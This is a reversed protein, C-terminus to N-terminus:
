DARAKRGILDDEDYIEGVVEELVDEITVVGLTQGDESQVLSMHHHKQQMLRLVSLVPEDCTVKIMPRIVDRWKTNKNEMAAFLEKANVLGLVQDGKVVPVRTHGCQILLKKVSHDELDFSVKTVKNWPLMISELSAKSINTLNYIYKRHLLSLKEDGAIAIKHRKTKASAIFPIQDLAKVILKTSHELVFIFPGFIKAIALIFVREFNIIANPFKVAVTKPVLEGFVVTFYTIAVVAVGTAIVKVLDPDSPFIKVLIPALFEGGLSGAVTGSVIAVITIGVQITSLTKELNQRMDLTKQAFRDGGEALTLLREQSVSVIAMEFGSLAGNLLVCVIVVVLEFLM